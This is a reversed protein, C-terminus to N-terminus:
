QQVHLGFGVVGPGSSQNLNSCPHITNQSDIIGVYAYRFDYGIASEVPFQQPITPAQLFFLPNSNGDRFPTGLSNPVLMAGPSTAVSTFVIEIGGPTYTSAFAGSWQVSDGNTQVSLPIYPTPVPKGDKDPVTQTCTNNNKPDLTITAKTVPALKALKLPPALAYKSEEQRNCGTMALVGALILFGAILRNHM